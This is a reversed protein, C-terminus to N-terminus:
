LKRPSRRKVLGIGFTVTSTVAGGAAACFVPQIM